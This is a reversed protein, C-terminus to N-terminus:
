LYPSSGDSAACRNVVYRPWGCETDDLFIAYCATLIKEERLVRLARGHEPRWAPLWAGSLTDIFVEFYGQV